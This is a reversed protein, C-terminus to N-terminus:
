IHLTIFIPIFLSEGKKKSRGWPFHSLSSSISELRLSFSTVWLSLPPLTLFIFDRLVSVLSFLSLHLLVLYVYYREVIKKVQWPFMLYWLELKFAMPSLVRRCKLQIFIFFSSHTRLYIHANECMCFFYRLLQLQNQVVLVQLSCFQFPFVLDLLCYSVEM